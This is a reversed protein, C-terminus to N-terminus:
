VGLFKSLLAGSSSYHYQLQDDCFRHERFSGGVADRIAVWQRWSIDRPRENEDLNAGEGNHDDENNRGGDFNELAKQFLMSADRKEDKTLPNKLREPPIANSITSIYPSLIRESAMSSKNTKANDDGSGGCCPM